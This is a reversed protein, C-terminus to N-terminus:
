SRVQFLHDVAPLQGALFDGAEGCGAVNLLEFVVAAVAPVIEGVFLERAKTQFQHPAIDNHISRGRDVLPCGTIGDLNSLYRTARSARQHGDSGTGRQEGNNALSWTVFRVAPQTLRRPRAATQPWHNTCGFRV